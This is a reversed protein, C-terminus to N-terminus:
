PTQAFKLQVTKSEKETLTIALGPPDDEDVAPDAEVDYAVARYSGPVVNPIVFHGKPDAWATNPRINRFPNIPDPILRVLAGPVPNEGRLVVGDVQGVGSSLTIDLSHGANGDALQLGDELVNQSGFTASHVYWNDPLGDLSM